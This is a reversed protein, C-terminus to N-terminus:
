VFNRVGELCKAFHMLAPIGSERAHRLWQTWVCRWAWATPATWLAKLQEKMVYVAM